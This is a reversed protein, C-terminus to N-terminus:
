SASRQRRSPRTPLLRKMPLAAARVPKDVVLLHLGEDSRLTRLGARALADMLVTEALRDQVEIYPLFADRIPDATQRSAERDGSLVLVGNQGLLSRVAAFDQTPRASRVVGGNSIVFDFPETGIQALADWATWSLDGKPAPDAQDLARSWRTMEEAKLANWKGLSTLVVHHGLGALAAAFSSRGGSIDLIRRPEEGVLRLLAAFAESKKVEAIADVPAGHLGEVKLMDRWNPNGQAADVLDAWTWRMRPALRIFRAPNGGVINFPAVSRSVLSQSGVVAGRGVTVGKLVAVGFGLWANDEIRIPAARVAAWDKMVGQRGARVGQLWDFADNLRVDADLSHADNDMLTVNWSLMVHSGIHIGEPQACIFLAGYGISSRDGITMAGIGREFVFHGAVQSDRGIRVYNRDQPNVRVDLNLGDTSTGEGVVLRAEGAVSHPVVPRPAPLRGAMPSLSDYIEVAELALGLQRTGAPECVAVSVVIEPPVLGEHPLDCSIEHRAGVFGSAITLSAREEGDILLRVRQNPSPNRFWIKIAAGQRLARRPRITLQHGETWCFVRDFGNDPYPGEYYGLGLIEDERLSSSVASVAPPPLPARNHTLSQARSILGPRNREFAELFVTDAPTAFPLAISLEEPTTDEVMRDLFTQAFEEPVHGAFFSNPLIYSAFINPFRLGLGYDTLQNASERRISLFDLVKRDNVNVTSGIRHRYFYAISPDIYVREANAMLDIAFPHDEYFVGQPFRIRDRKLLANSVVYRWPPCSWCSVASFTEQNLRPECVTSALWGPLRDSPSQSGDAYHNSFNVVVVEPEHIRITERLKALIGTQIFDDSDVFWVYEGRALDIGISRARGQGGNRQYHARVRPDRASYEAIIQDTGDTSGDDVVIIEVADLSQNLISDLAEGIYDRVNYAPMVISFFPRTEPAAAVSSPLPGTASVAPFAAISAAAAGRNTLSGVVARVYRSDALREAIPVLKQESDWGRVGALTLAAEATSLGPFSEQILRASESMILDPNVSSAGNLSFEVVVEDLRACRLGTRIARHVWQADACLKYSTDYLGIQDYAERAVFMANHCFPIGSVLATAGYAEDARLQGDQNGGVFRTLGAYIDCPEKEARAAIADLAGPALRDDVGLVVVFKGRAMRVGKNIADYIGRDPESVFATVVDANARIHDVTDDSSLGDVVLYEVDDRRQIRVSDAAIGIQDGVNLTTTIVTFLYKSM